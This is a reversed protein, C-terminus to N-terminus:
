ITYVLLNTATNINVPANKIIKGTNNYIHMINYSGVDLNIIGEVKKNRKKMMSFIEQSIDYLSFASTVNFVIHHVEGTKIDSCLTLLRRERQQTNSRTSSITIKDSFALMHSQFLTAKKDKAWTLLQSFAILNDLPNLIKPGGYPLQFDKNDLNLLRIGGAKEVIVLGEMDHKISANVIIGNEVTLGVPIGNNSYGGTAAFVTKRKKKLNNFKNFVNNSAFYNAKAHPRQLWISEGIRTNGEHLSFVNVSNDTNNDIKHFSTIPKLKLKTQYTQIPAKVTNCNPLTKGLVLCIASLTLTLIIFPIKRFLLSIFVLGIILFGIFRGPVNVRCGIPELLEDLKIGIRNVIYGFKGQKINKFLKQQTTEEIDLAIKHKGLRAELNKIRQSSYKLTRSRIDTEIRNAVRGLLYYGMIIYIEDTSANWAGKKPNLFQEGISTKKELDASSVPYLEIFKQGLYYLFLDGDGKQHYMLLRDAQLTKFDTFAINKLYADYPFSNAFQELTQNKKSSLQYKMIGSQASISFHILLNLLLIYNKRKM